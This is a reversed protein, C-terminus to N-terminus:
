FPMRQHMNRRLKTKNKKKKLKNIDLVQINYGKERGVGVGRMKHIILKRYRTNLFFNAISGYYKQFSLYLNCSDDPHGRKKKLRM